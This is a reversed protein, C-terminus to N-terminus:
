YNRLGEYFAVDVKSNAGIEPDALKSSKRTGFKRKM